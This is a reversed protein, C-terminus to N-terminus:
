QNNLSDLLNRANNNNPDIKLVKNLYLIAADRGSDARLFINVKKMLKEVREVNNDSNNEVVIVPSFNTVQRIKEINYKSKAAIISDSKENNLLFLSSFAIIVVVSLVINLILNSNTKKFLPLQAISQNTKNFINKVFINKYYEDGNGNFKNNIAFPMDGMSNVVTKQSIPLNNDKLRDNVSNFVENLSLYPKENNLGFTLVNVLEKTFYTPESNNTVSYKSEENESSSAVIFEGEFDDKDNSYFSASESITSHIAGSYCADLIIVKRKAYASSVLNRIRQVSIGTSVVDNSISDITSLYVSLDDQSVSGHGTYYVILTEDPETDKAFTSLQKEISVKKENLLVLVNDTNIGFFSKDTFLRKLVNINVEINPVNVIQEDDPYKSVGILVIKFKDFNLEPINIKSYTKTKM